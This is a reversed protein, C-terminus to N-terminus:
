AGTKNFKDFRNCFVFLLSQLSQMKDRKRLKNLFILLVYASM